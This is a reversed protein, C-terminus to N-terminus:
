RQRAETSLREPACSPDMGIARNNGRLCLEALFEGKGCGIELITADQVGFEDILRDCLHEAFKSFTTSCHQTEEYGSGYQSFSHDFRSNFVFDCQRCYHLDIDAKPYNLAQEATEM